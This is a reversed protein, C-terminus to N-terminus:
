GFVYTRADRPLFSIQTFPYFLFRTLTDREEKERNVRKVMKGKNRDASQGGWEKCGSKGHLICLSYVTVCRNKRM